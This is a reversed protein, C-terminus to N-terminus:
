AIAGVWSVSFCKQLLHNTPPDYSSDPKQLGFFIWQHISPLSSNTPDLLNIRLRVFFFGNHFVLSVGEFDKNHGRTKQVTKYFLCYSFKRRPIMNRSPSPPFNQRQFCSSDSACCGLWSDVRSHLSDSGVRGYCKISPYDVSSSAKRFSNRLYICVFSMLYGNKKNTLHYIGFGHLVQESQCIYVLSISLKEQRDIWHFIKLM